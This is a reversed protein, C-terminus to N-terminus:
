TKRQFANSHSNHFHEFLISTAWLLSALVTNTTSTTATTTSTTATCTATSTITTTAICTTTITTSNRVHGPENDM